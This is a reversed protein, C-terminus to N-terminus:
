CSNGKKGKFILENTAQGDEQFSCSDKSNFINWIGDKWAVGVVFRQGVALSQLEGDGAARQIGAATEAFM